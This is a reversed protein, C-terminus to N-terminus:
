RILDLFDKLSIVSKMVYIESASFSFMALESKPFGHESWWNSVESDKNQEQLALLADLQLVVYREGPITIPKNSLVGFSKGASDEPTLYFLCPIEIGLWGKRVFEPAEGEPIEVIRIMGLSSDM